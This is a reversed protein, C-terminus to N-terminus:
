CLTSAVYVGDIIWGAVMGLVFVTLATGASREM